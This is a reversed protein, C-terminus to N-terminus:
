GNGDYLTLNYSKWFAFPWFTNLIVTKKGLENENVESEKFRMRNCKYTFITYISDLLLFCALFAKQSFVCDEIAQTLMHTHTHANHIHTRM